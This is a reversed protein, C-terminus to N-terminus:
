VQARMDRIARQAAVSVIKALGFSTAAQILTAAGVALALPILLDSRGGALVDDIVFKSSAPLVFAALRGIVMLVLGVLLPARHAKVLAWADGRVNSFKVRKKESM